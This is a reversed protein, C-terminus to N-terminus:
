ASPPLEQLEQWLETYRRITFDVGPVSRDIRDLYLMREHDLYYAHRLLNSEGILSPINHLHDSEAAVQQLNGVIAAERICLLGFSLIQLYVRDRDSM